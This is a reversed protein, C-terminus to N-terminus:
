TAAVARATASAFPMAGSASASAVRALVSLRKERIPASLGRTHAEGGRDEAAARGGAHRADLLAPAGAVRGIRQVAAAAARQEELADALAAHRGHQDVHSGVDAFLQDFRVHPAEVAHEDGVRMGVVGMPDVVQPREIVCAVGADVDM